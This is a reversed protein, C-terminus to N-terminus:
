RRALVFAACSVLVFLQLLQSYCCNCGGVCSYRRDECYGDSRAWAFTASKYAYYGTAWPKGSFEAKAVYILFHGFESGFGDQKTEVVIDAGRRWQNMQDLSCALM